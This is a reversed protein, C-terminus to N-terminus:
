ITEANLPFSELYNSMLTRLRADLHAVMRTARELEGDVSASSAVNAQATLQECELLCFSLDRACAAVEEVIKGTLFFM